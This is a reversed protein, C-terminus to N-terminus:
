RVFLKLPIADGMRRYGEPGPHLHDGSDAAPLMYDPKAPDQLVADFDIVDDFTHSSRIWDNLAVRDADSAASPHYYDSGVYPTLTAGYVVIGHEHSRAVIQAMAAEVQALWAAHTAADHAELRDLGGLDNIGELLIVYRVGPRALVDREFRALANPGLGDYLLHNGGIGANVVGLGRTKANAALRKALFDPWRDNGDTTSAHGDTISDGLAVVTGANRDDSLVEVGTLFYWRTWSQPSSLKAEGGHSGSALFSTAHAGTHLTVNSPASTIEIDVVLDSLPSLKMSMPDSVYEAGMPVSVATAGHFTLRQASHPAIVGHEPSSQQAIMVSGVALASQGFANSLRVRVQSGGASVHVVERLTTHDFTKPPLVEAGYPQLEAAGWTAVWQPSAAGAPLCGLLVSAAFVRALLLVPSEVQAKSGVNKETEFSHMLNLKGSSIDDVM